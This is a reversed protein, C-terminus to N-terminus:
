EQKIGGFMFDDLTLPKGHGKVQKEGMQASYNIKTRTAETFDNPDAPGMDGWADLGSEKLYKGTSPSAKLKNWMEVPVNNYKWWQGERFVVILTNTNPNYAITYARPRAHNITPANYSQMGAEEVDKPTEVEFDSVNGHMAEMEAWSPLTAKKRAM